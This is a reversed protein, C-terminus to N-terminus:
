CDELEAAIAFFQNRVDFASVRRYREDVTAPYHERTEPVVQNAAAELAAALGQATTGCQDFAQACADLIAQAAPSLDTM